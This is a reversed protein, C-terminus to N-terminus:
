DLIKIIKVINDAGGVAVSEGESKGIIAVGLPAKNHIKKIDSLYETKTAYEVLQLRIELDSNIYKIIVNSNPKVKKAKEEKISMEKKILSPANVYNVMYNLRESPHSKLNDSKNNEPKVLQNQESDLKNLAVWEDNYKSSGVTKGIAAFDYFVLRWIDNLKDFPIIRYDIDSYDDYIVKYGKFHLVDKVPINKILHAKFKKFGEKNYFIGLISDKSIVQMLQLTSEMNMGNMYVKGRSHSLLFSINVKNVHGCRYCQLLYGNEQYTLIPVVYDAELPEKESIIYNGNKYLNFYKIIDKKNVGNLGSHEEKKKVGNSSSHEEKKKYWANKAPAYSYGPLKISSWFNTSTEWKTVNNRGKLGSVEDKEDADPLSPILGAKNIRLISEEQLGKVKAEEQVETQVEEKVEITQRTTNTRNNLIRWLPELAKVRDLYYEGGRVRFFQWGCRELVKQRMMDDQYRDPGHWRDGDCEIAIKSGDPLFTVLDIFYKGRAVEFQPKVSYGRSIIDNFVDVEFWSGFPVPHNGVERKIQTSLPIIAPKHNLFHDLLKYRLDGTNSLDQPLISHFLWIQEIARSVAVNFRREDEPKTLASRNHNQATVLSLFILDREDGQFSASNGCIIKRKNYESEGIEKILLNEILTGQSTGQLSIVGISKNKYRPDKVIESIKNVLAIAENKNRIAQGSGEVVGNQCYVHMLPELRNESYQKLPYLGKGDPAYFLKNSFEIIEPMCRFHERLVTIGECFIKAHDFFSFETGYHDKFPIGQLHKNIYPTMTNADVGVYEPSTQKDDGVIIINKSIYLLFIADPGLQSAEDIIVYDYIEKEPKITETVKYLPMIWCPVSTKCYDMHDQAVKRFKLARKGKGTKGIKKVALVWAELHQRIFRNKKLNELVYIWSRKAAVEAILKEEKSDYSKLRAILESEYDKSLLKRIENQASKFLIADELQCIQSPTILDKQIDSILLPFCTALEKGLLNFSQFNVIDDTIKELKTILSPYSIVDLAEIAKKIESAIPHMKVNSLYLIIQDRINELDSLESLIKNYAVDEILKDLHNVDIDLIRIDSISKIANIEREALTMDEFLSSADKCLKQFYNFDNHFTRREDDNVGWLHDLESLDQKIEIDDIVRKIEEKTDCPSGNVLVSEIFYLKEKIRKPLFAKRLNFGIGSLSNGANLYEYLAKADNKLVILSKDVNYKIDINRDIEKLNFKELNLLIEKSQDIKKHWAQKRNNIVDNIIKNKFTHQNVGIREYVVKLSVLLPELRELDSCKIKSRFENSKKYHEVKQVAQSFVELKEPTFLYQVEIPLYSYNKKDKVKYHQFQNYYLNVQDIIEQDALNVFEDKYWKYEEKTLELNEAIETLTGKFLRNIEISRSGKEKIKLLESTDTTKKTKLTSIRVDLEEIQTRLSDIDENALKDNITNISAELDQISSSDGSLLNVTLPKFEEPLKNKLVELARKTQATILLKKGNALLHCILNAITHSKGTGPPGQVLVKNHYRAKKIIAIQEDNYKNPFYIPYTDNLEVNDTQPRNDNTGAEELHILDDLTKISIDESNEIDSIIGEYLATYSQTNRKRLILAPAFIITEKKPISKPKQHDPFYNGDGPKIREALLQLVDHINKDFPNVLEKVKFAELALNEGAIIDNSDFQDLLDIIADTEIKIGDTLGQTVILSSNKQSFEFEIEAKVTIIHRCIHPTQDSEKFNILGVGMILEYEEGFQESKNYISFLKKYVDNVKEFINYESDYVQRKQWYIESDNMWKVECYREFLLQIDKRENLKIIEGDTGEIEAFLEPYETKNLLTEPIIWDKLEKPPNPFIPELPEIPKSIKLWHESDETTQKQLICDIKEHHPVDNLWLVEIYNTPSNEIDRVAKSRLKSFELLYKFIQLYKEKM